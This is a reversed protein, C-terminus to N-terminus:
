WARFAGTPRLFVNRGAANEERHAKSVLEHHTTSSKHNNCVVTTDQHANQPHVGDALLSGAARDPCASALANALASNVANAGVGLPMEQV